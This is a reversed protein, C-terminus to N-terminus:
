INKSIAKVGSKCTKIVNKNINLGPSARFGKETYPAFYNKKKKKKMIKTRTLNLPTQM